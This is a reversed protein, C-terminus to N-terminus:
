KKLCESCIGYLEFKHDTLTFNKDSLEKKMEELPCFNITETKGCSRCIIHHHHESECKLEYSSTNGSLVTKHVIGTADLIDLNRYITSFNTKPFKERSKIYIEEASIFHGANNLFVEIIARRQLTLKYGHEKLIGEIIHLDIM